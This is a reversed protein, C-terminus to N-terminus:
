SEQIQSQDALDALKKAEKFNDPNQLFDLAEKLKANNDDADNALADMIGQASNKYQLISQITKDLTSTFTALQEADIHKKVINFVDFSDLIDYTEYVKDADVEIDNFLGVKLNTYYEIILLSTVLDYLIGSCYNHDGVIINVGWTVMDLLHEYPIKKQIVIDAEGIHVTEPELTSLPGLATIEIKNEM